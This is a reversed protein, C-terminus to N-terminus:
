PALLKVAYLVIIAAAAAYCLWGLLRLFLQTRPGDQLVLQPEDAGAARRLEAIVEDIWDGTVVL